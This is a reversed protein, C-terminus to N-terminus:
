IFGTASHLSFIKSQGNVHRFFQGRGAQITQRAFLGNIQRFIHRFILVFDPMNQCVFVAVVLLLVNPPRRKAARQQRYVPKMREDPKGGNQGLPITFQRTIFRRDAQKPFFLPNSISFGKNRQHGSLRFGHINYTRYSRHGLIRFIQLFSDSPNRLGRM